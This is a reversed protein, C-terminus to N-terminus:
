HVCSWFSLFCAHSVVDNAFCTTGNDRRNASQCNKIHIVSVRSSSHTDYEDTADDKHRPEDKDTTEYIYVLRTESLYFVLIDALYLISVGLM